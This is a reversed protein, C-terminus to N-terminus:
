LWQLMGLPDSTYAFNEYNYSYCFVTNLSIVRTNEFRRGDKLRLPASYSSFKYFDSYEKSNDQFFPKWVPSWKRV